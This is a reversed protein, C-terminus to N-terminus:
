NVWRSAALYKVIVRLEGFRLEDGLRIPSRTQQVGNVFTGSASALDILYATESGALEIVAHLKALSPEGAGLHASSLSGIKIVSRDFSREEVFTDGRYIRLILKAPGGDLDEPTPPAPPAAQVKPAAASRSRAAALIPMLEAGATASVRVMQEMWVVAGILLLAGLALLGLYANANPMKKLASFWQLPPGALLLLAMWTLWKPEALRRNQAALTQEFLTSLSPGALLPHTPGSSGMMSQLVTSVAVCYPSEPAAQCLKAARTWNDAQCLRAILSNFLRPQVWRARLQALRLLLLLVATGTSLWLALQASM